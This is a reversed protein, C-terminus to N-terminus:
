WWEDKDSIAFGAMSKRNTFGSIQGVRAKAVLQNITAHNTTVPILNDSPGPLPFTNESPNRTIHTDMWWATSKAATMTRRLTNPDRCAVWIESHDGLNWTCHSTLTSSSEGLCLRCSCDKFSWLLYIVCKVFLTSKTLGLILPVGLVPSTSGSRSPNLPWTVSIHPM